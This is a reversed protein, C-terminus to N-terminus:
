PNDGPAPPEAGGPPAAPPTTEGPPPVPAAEGPPTPAAAGPQTPMVEEPLVGFAKEKNPDRLLAPSLQGTERVCVVLGSHTGFYLRDNDPNPMPLDFGRLNLGAREFTARPTAVLKGTARDLIALDHDENMMYIKTPSLALFHSRGTEITWFPQGTAADISSVAGASNVVYIATGTILCPREIPQGSAFTWKRDGTYLDIAYLNSDGSPVLLTRTGLGGLGASIPGGTLFRYVLKPPTIKAVYVRGDKSAFALAHHAIIPRGMVPGDTKWNFLSTGPSVPALEAESPNRPKNLQAKISQETRDLM